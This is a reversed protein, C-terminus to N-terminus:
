QCIMRSEHKCGEFENRRTKVTIHVHRDYPLNIHCYAVILNTHFKRFVCCENTLVGGIDIKFCIGIRAMVPVYVTNLNFNGM